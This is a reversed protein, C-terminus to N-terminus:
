NTNDTMSKKHQQWLIPEKNFIPINPRRAIYRQVVAKLSLANHHSVRCGVRCFQKRATKCPMSCGCHKCIRITLM